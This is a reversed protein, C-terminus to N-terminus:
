EEKNAASTSPKVEAVIPKAGKAPAKPIDKPIDAAKASAKRPPSHKGALAERKQARDM